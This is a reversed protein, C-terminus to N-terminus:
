KTAQQQAAKIRRKTERIAARGKAYAERLREANPATRAWTDHDHEFVSLGSEDVVPVDRTLLVSTPHGPKAYDLQLVAEGTSLHVETHARLDDVETGCLVCRGARILASYNWDHGTGGCRTCVVYDQQAPFQGAGDCSPCALFAALQDRLPDVTM